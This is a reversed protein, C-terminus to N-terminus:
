KAKVKPDSDLILFSASFLISSIMDFSCSSKDKPPCAAAAACERPVGNEVILIIEDSKNFRLQNSNRDYNVIFEKKSIEQFSKVIEDIYKSLTLNSDIFEHSLIVPAFSEKVKYHLAKWKGYYDISSWSAGPWCDNLQWYLQRKYM